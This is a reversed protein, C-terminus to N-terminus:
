FVNCINWFFISKFEDLTKAVDTYKGQPIEQYNAFVEEWDTDSIPPLVGMVPRWDVMSLGSDTLRTIGGVVLIIAVSACICRLWLLVPNRKEVGIVETKLLTGGM